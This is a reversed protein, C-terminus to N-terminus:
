IRDKLLLMKQTFPVLNKIVKKKIFLTIKKITQFFAENPKETQYNARKKENKEASLM